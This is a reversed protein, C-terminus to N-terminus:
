IGEKWQNNVRVYPSAEKWQGNVRVYPTAEKWQSNIKLNIGQQTKVSINIESSEGIKTNGSYTEIVGGLTITKNSTYNKIYNISSQSLYVEQNSQYNNYKDLAVVHPISIRLKYNYNSKPTFTAKFLGNISSGEFSNIEVPSETNPFRAYFTFDWNAVGLGSTINGSITEVHEGSSDHQVTLDQELLTHYGAYYTYPVSQEINPNFFRAVTNSWSVSGGAVVNLVIYRRYTTSNNEQKLIDYGVRLENGYGDLAKTGLVEM